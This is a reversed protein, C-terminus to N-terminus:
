RLRRPATRLLGVLSTTALADAPVRLWVVFVVGRGKQAMVLRMKKTIKTGITRRIAAQLLASASCNEDAGPLESETWSEGFLTQGVLSLM